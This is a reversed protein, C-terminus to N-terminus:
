DDPQRDEDCPEPQEDEEPFPRLGYIGKRSPHAYIMRKNVMRYLRANLRTRKEIEGTRRYIAILLKDLSTAGGLDKIMEAIAFEQKDGETISLQELLEPPLDEIESPTLRYLSEINSDVTSPTSHQSEFNELDALLQRFVAARNHYSHTRNEDDRYKVASRENYEIQEKVFSRYKDMISSM